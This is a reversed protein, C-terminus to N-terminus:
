TRWATVTARQPTTKSVSAAVVFLILLVALLCGMAIMSMTWVESGRTELRDGLSKPQEKRTPSAIVTFDNWAPTPIRRDPDGAADRGGRGTVYSSAGSPPGSLRHVVASGFGLVQACADILDTGVVLWRFRRGRFADCEM